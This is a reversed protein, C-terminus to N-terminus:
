MTAGLIRRAYAYKAALRAITAEDLLALRQPDTNDAIDALKVARAVSNAMVRSYYDDIPEGSRKSMADVARIVVEPFHERLDNLTITTDEVVDHLWAVAEAADDGRVREAVRAPHGIYPQGSKDVQELHARTAISRAVDVVPSHVM